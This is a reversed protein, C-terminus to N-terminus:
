CGPPLCRGQWPDEGSPCLPRTSSWHGMSSSVGCPHPTGANSLVQGAPSPGARGGQLAEETHEDTKSEREDAMREREDAIREREDATLDTRDFADQLAAFRERARTVAAQLKEVRGKEDDKRM